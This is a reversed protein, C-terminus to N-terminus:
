RGRFYTQEVLDFGHNSLNFNSTTSSMRTTFIGSIKGQELLEKAKKEFTKFLRGSVIKGRHEPLIYYVLERLEHHSPLWMNPQKIAMLIGIPKEGALALWIYGSNFVTWILKLLHERDKAADRSLDYATDELFKQILELIKVTDTREALKIM